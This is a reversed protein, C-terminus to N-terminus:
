LSVTIARYYTSQFFTTTLHTLLNNYFNYEISDNCAELYYPFNTIDLTENGTRIKYSDPNLM